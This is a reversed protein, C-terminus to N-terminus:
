LLSVSLAEDLVVIADYYKAQELYVYGMNCLTSMISLSGPKDGKSAALISRQMEVTDEFTKEASVLDGFEFYVCGLNNLIKAVRIDEEGFNREMIDLAENFAELSGHFEKRSLLIIGM